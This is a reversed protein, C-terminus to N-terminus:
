PASDQFPPFLSIFWTSFLPIASLVELGKEQSPLVRIQRGPAEPVSTLNSDQSPPAPFPFEKAPSPFEWRPPTAIGANWFPQPQFPGQIGGLEM